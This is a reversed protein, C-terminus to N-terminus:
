GKDEKPNNFLPGAAVTPPRWPTAGERKTGPKMLLLLPLQIEGIGDWYRNTPLRKLEEIHAVLRYLFFCQDCGGKIANPGSKVPNFRPHKHCRLTLKLM